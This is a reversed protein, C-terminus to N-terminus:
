FLSLSFQSGCDSITAASAVGSSPLDWVVQSRDLAALKYLLQSSQEGLVDRFLFSFQGPATQEGKAIGLARAL